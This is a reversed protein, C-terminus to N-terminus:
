NNCTNRYKVDSALLNTYVDLIGNNAQLVPSAFTYPNIGVVGNFQLRALANNYNVGATATLNGGVTAVGTSTYNFQVVRVDGGLDVTTTNDGQVNLINIPNTAGVAGTVTSNGVFNLINAGGAVTNDINGGTAGGVNAKDDITM